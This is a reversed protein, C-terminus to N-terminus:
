HLNETTRLILKQLRRAVHDYLDAIFLARRSKIM